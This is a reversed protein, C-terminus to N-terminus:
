KFEINEGVKCLFLIDSQMRYGDEIFEGSTKIKLLDAEKLREVTIFNLRDSVLKIIEEDTYEATEYDFIPIYSISVSFPLEIRDQHLYKIENKIIDCESTLNGYIKFINISFNFFNLTIKALKRDRYDKKEYKRDIEASLTDSVRGIVDAEAYCFGGGSEYPLVGAVLLDGKKVADGVKVVATGSKVTIEEIVCDYKAVINSYGVKPEEIEPSETKNEIVRIYAVTGRRNLNIWAIEPNNLLFDSELKGRNTFCWFSGIDFGLESLGEEIAEESIEENGSIRIDWVVSSLLATLAISIVLSLIVVAKNELRLWRGYLGMPESYTFKIRGKLLNKIKEFDRERVVVTQDDSISSFVSARIFISTLKSLDDADVKLRRYGFLLCDIKVM